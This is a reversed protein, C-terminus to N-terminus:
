HPIHLRNRLAIIEHQMNEIRQLLQDIVEIGELNIALDYHLRTLKELRTLQEAQIFTQGEVVTVEILESRQLLEVFSEEINCTVCFDHISILEENEM